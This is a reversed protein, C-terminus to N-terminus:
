QAVKALEELTRVVVAGAKVLQQAAQKGLNPGYVVVPKGAPNLAKDNILATV